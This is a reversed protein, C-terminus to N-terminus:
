RRDASFGGLFVLLFEGLQQLARVHHEQGAAHSAAGAGADGRNAAPASPVFQLMVPRVARAKCSTLSAASITRADASLSALMMKPVTMSSFIDPSTFIVTTAVPKTTPASGLRSISSCYLRGAGTSSTGTYLPKSGDFRSM